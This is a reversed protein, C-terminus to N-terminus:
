FVQLTQFQPMGNLKQHKLHMQTQAVQAAIREQHMSQISDRLVEGNRYTKSGM